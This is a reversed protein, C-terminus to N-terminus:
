KFVAYEATAATLYLATLARQRRDTSANIATAITDRTALSMRGALLKDSVLNLLAGTDGAADIYPTLNFSISGAHEGNLLDYVFNARAVALSPAYIQFEPGFYAPNGPLRTLPSYFSFVSPANLLKQGLQLYNFFLNTPDNVTAGLARVLGLSHLMPDKLHGQTAAPADQRAEPDLLVASLTAALDGRGRPGHSFVDAVRRIYDPSPNSTVLSRILRTAVFPPLNPHQFLDRMVGDLDQQVNQGAPLVSGLLQKAAKDHYNDRPQLPGSFDEWNVGDPRAGVYTWGSLARAFEAIHAQTYTPAPIGAGDRVSSGDQNLLVPGVSFLQLVERAYNENPSPAMSNGMDLYKGMAPNLTMERLLGDFNGFAHRSLTALWPQMENGYPNKDASVVFIQSLAFIMRQRLQDQGSAMNRYWAARLVNLDNTVPIPSASLALQQTLWANPGITRVQAIDSATPGFTAQELFRAATVKAPEIPAPPTPAPGPSGPPPVPVPAAGCAGVKASYNPEGANNGPNVVKVSITGAETASGQALLRTASVYTTPVARSGIWVVSEPVYRTGNVTLTFEGCAPATPTLSTIAPGPERLTLTTSGTLPPTTETTGSITVVPDAPLTAPAKYEGSQSNITGFAANGGAVGNVAYRLFTGAGNVKGIFYVKAGLTVPTTAGNTREVTVTQAHATGLAALLAAAAYVRRIFGQTQM